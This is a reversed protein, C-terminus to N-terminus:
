PARIAREVPRSTGRVVGQGSLTWPSEQCAGRALMTERLGDGHIPLPGLAPRCSRQM